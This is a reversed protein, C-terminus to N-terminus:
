RGVDLGYLSQRIDDTLRDMTMAFLFPRLASRRQLGAEVKFGDAVGVGYRVGDCTGIVYGAASKHRERSSQGGEYWLEERPVTLYKRQIWM